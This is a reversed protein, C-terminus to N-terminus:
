DQHWVEHEEIAFDIVKSIRGDDTLSVSMDTTHNIGAAHFLARIRRAEDGGIDGIKRFPANVFEAEFALEAFYEASVDNGDRDIVQQRTCIQFHAPVLSVLDPSSEARIYADVEAKFVARAHHEDHKRRYIKRIRGADQNLFIVGYAGEDLYVFDTGALALGRAANVFGV